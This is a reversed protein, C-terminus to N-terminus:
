INYIEIVRNSIAEYLDPNREALIDKIPQIIKTKSDGWAHAFGMENAQDNMDKIDNNYDESNLELLYKVKITNSTLGALYYQEIILNPALRKSLDYKQLSMFDQSASCVDILKFYNEVYKDKLEISNFGLVGCNVSEQLDTVFGDISTESLAIADIFMPIQENYWDMFIPYREKMQVIVDHGELLSLNEIVRPHKLFVDGDIHITGLEEKNLALIKAASWFITNINNADLEDLTTYIESYPLCDFIKAGVSDTHLELTQGIREAYDVSYGYLWLSQELQKTTM